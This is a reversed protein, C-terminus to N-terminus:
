EKCKDRGKKISRKSFPLKEKKPTTLSDEFIKLQRKLIENVGLEMVFDREKKNMEVEMNASGDKHEIVKIVKM